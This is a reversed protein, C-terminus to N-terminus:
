NSASVKFRNNKYTSKVNKWTYYISLDALAKNKNPDKINLYDLNTLNM